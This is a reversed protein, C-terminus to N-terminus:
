LNENKQTLYVLLVSFLGFMIRSDIISYSKLSNLFLYVFILVFNFHLRIKKFYLFLLLIFLAAGVFGLEFWIELVVNHPYLREDVGEYLIGFSGIGRGFLFNGANEFISDLSFAIQSIRLMIGTSVEPNMLQLLRFISREILLAYKDTLYYIAAGFSCVGAAAYFINKLNLKWSKKMFTVFSVAFKILLIIALFVIPGRGASVMLTWVNVGLLLIKFVRNMRPCAFALILIIAGALYGIDLYKVVMERYEASRIYTSYVAPLLATYLFILGSGLYVFLDFFRRANFGRYLLPFVLAVCVTLFMFVKTYCYGPSRTYLLTVNMWLFFALLTFVIPKSSDVIYFKSKFFFDKSFHFIYTGAMIIACLLTIDVVMLGAAYSILFTKVLGSLLFMVYVLEIM